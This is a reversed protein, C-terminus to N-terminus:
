FGFTAGAGVSFRSGFLGFSYTDPWDDPVLRDTLRWIMREPDGEPDTGALAVTREGDCFAAKVLFADLESRDGAPDGCLPESGGDFDFVFRRDATGAATATLGLGRVGREVAALLAPEALPPAGRWTVLVPGSAATEALLRRAESPNSGPDVRVEPTTACGAALLLALVALPRHRCRMTASRDASPNRHGATGAM